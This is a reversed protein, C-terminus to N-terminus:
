QFNGDKTLVSRDLGLATVQADAADASGNIGLFLNASGESPADAFDAALGHDKLIQEARDRTYSDIGEGCVVTVRETFRATGNGAEQQQPVPYITYQAMGGVPFLLACLGILLNKKKM